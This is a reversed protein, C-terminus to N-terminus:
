YHGPVKLGSNNTDIYIFLYIECSSPYALKEFMKKREEFPTDVTLQFGNDTSLSDSLGGFSDDEDHFLEENMNYSATTSSPM